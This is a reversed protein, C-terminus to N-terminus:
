TGVSYGDDRCARHFAVAIESTQEPSSNLSSPAYREDTDKFALPCAEADLKVPLLYTLLSHCPHLRHFTVQDLTKVM